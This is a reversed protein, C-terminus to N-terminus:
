GAYFAYANDDRAQRARGYEEEYDWLSLKKLFFSSFMFHTNQDERWSRGAVNRM